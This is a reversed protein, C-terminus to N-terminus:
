IISFNNKNTFSTDSGITMNKPCYFISLSNFQFLLSGIKYKFSSFPRGIETARIPTHMATALQMSIHKHTCIQEISKSIQPYKRFILSKKWCQKIRITTRLACWVPSYTSKTFIECSGPYTLHNIKYIGKKSIISLSWIDISLINQKVFM